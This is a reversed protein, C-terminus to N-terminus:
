ENEGHVPCEPDPDPDDNHIPCYMSCHYVGEKGDWDDPPPNQCDCTKPCTCKPEKTSRAISYVIVGGVMLLIGKIGKWVGDEHGQLNEPTPEIFSGEPPVPHSFQMSCGDALTVIGWLILFIGIVTCVGYIFKRQTNKMDQKKINEQNKCYM